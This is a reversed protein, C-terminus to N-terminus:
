ESGDKIRIIDRDQDISWLDENDLEGRAAAKFSTADAEYNSGLPDTSSQVRFDSDAQIECSFYSAKLYTTGVSTACDGNCIRYWSVCNEETEYAPPVDPLDDAAKQNFGVDYHQPGIPVAGVLVLNEHYTGWQEHFQQEASYLMSLSHKAEASRAKNKQARYSSIGVASLITTIAAATMLELLSFGSDESKVFFYFM